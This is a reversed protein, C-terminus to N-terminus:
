GNRSPPLGLQKRTARNLQWTEGHATLRENIYGQARDLREGFTPPKDEASNWFDNFFQRVIERRQTLDEQTLDEQTLSRETEIRAEGDARVAIDGRPEVDVEAPSAEADPGAQDDLEVSAADDTSSLDEAAASADAESATVPEVTPSLDEAAASADAESAAAPEITHRVDEAAATADTEGATAPEITPRADEAAAGGDTEGSTTPEIKAPQNVLARFLEVGTKIWQRMAVGVVAFYCFL